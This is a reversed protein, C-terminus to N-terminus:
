SSAKKSASRQVLKALRSKVRAATNKKITGAKATKDAVKFAARLLTEAEAVNGALALRKVKKAALKLADKRSRNLVARRSSQRM